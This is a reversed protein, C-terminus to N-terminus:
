AEAAEIMKLYKSALHELRELQRKLNTGENALTDATLEGLRRLLDDLVAHPKRRAKHSLWEAEVEHMTPADDANEVDFRAAFGTGHEDDYRKMQDWLLVNEHRYFVNSNDDANNPRPEAFVWKFLVEEGEPPIEFASDGIGLQSRVWPKKAINEFLYYDSKGFEEGDPLDDEWEARFHSFWSASKLQRKTKTAGLTAEEAVHSVISDDWFRATDSGHKDEFLHDYRHLLWLDEAYNGWMKAGTIHRVALVRPLKSQLEGVSAADIPTVQLKATDAIIRQLRHVLDQQEDIQPKSYTSSSKKMRDLKKVAKNIEATRIRELAVRRRNGEVVVYGDHKPHKWVLMADIPMWGQGVIAQVLTDVDYAADGIEEVIRRRVDEDFLPGPDEYGEAEDLALRPNNPDPYLDDIPVVIAPKLFSEVISEKTPPPHAV